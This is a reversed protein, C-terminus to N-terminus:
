QATRPMRTRSDSNLLRGSRGMHRGFLADREVETSRFFPYRAEVPEKADCYDLGLCATKGILGPCERPECWARYGFARRYFAQHQEAVTTLVFDAEFYEAALWAPRLAIYSLEPLRRAFELRASPRTAEVISCGSGIRPVIVDSFAGLSPLADSEDSAIHLTMASALEGDIFTMTVWANPAEDFARDHLKDDAGPDTLRRVNAQRRLQHVANKEAHTVACRHEVSELLRLARDSFSLNSSRAKDM